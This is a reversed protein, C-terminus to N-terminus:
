SAEDSGVQHVPDAVPGLLGAILLDAVARPTPLTTDPSLLLSIAM